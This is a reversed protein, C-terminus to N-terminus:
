SVNSAGAAAILQEGDIQTLYGQRVLQAVDDAWKVVFARHTPYLAALQASTFPITTGALVCFGPSNPVVNGTLTAVPVDVAPSRVGGIINGNADVVPATTAPEGVYQGVFLPPASAPTGTLAGGTGAWRELQLVAASFTYRAEGTNIPASCTGIGPITAPPKLMENFLAITGATAGGQNICLLFQCADAHSTGAAEWLRFGRSDAQTAPGYDLLGFPPSFVDTQTMYSLVPAFIDTRSQVVSPSPMATLGINGNPEATLVGDVVVNATGPAEQLASTAASRSHVVYGDYVNYMPAFANIYTQLFIASQSIGDAVIVRPRLGGLVNAYLDRVAMGAQSFIDYSYSDGPQVLTGYRAPNNLKAGEVGVFQAAVGVYADGQRFVDAHDLTLDPLSDAGGSVNSWEVIANGSFRKPNIPTLVVIRSEYSASSGAAPAVMWRGNTKPTGVFDYAQATGSIFFEKEQYGSQQLVTASVVSMGGDAGSAVPGALPGTVSPLPASAAPQGTVPTAVPGTVTSAAGPTAAASPAFAFVGLAAPLGLAALTAVARRGGKRAAGSHARAKRTLLAFVDAMVDKGSRRVPSEGCQSGPHKKAQHEGRHWANVGM